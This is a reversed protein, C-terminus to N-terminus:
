HTARIRLTSAVRVVERPSDPHSLRRELLRLIERTTEEVPNTLTTLNFEPWAAITIDDFGILSVEGPVDIGAEHRLYTLAGIAMADNACIIADVASDQGVLRRAAERGGEYSYDGHETVVPELGARALRETMGLRRERDSFWDPPGGIYAFRQRGRKLLLETAQATAERNRCCVCDTGEEPTVHGSVIIPINLKVCREVLAPSVSGGRVILADLPYRLISLLGEESLADRGGVLIPWRNSANLETVLRATMMSDLEGELGGSVLAVLNSRIGTMAAAMANPQYGLQLASRLIRSRKEEDLYAGQTFARSVASRSVGAMEAVDAATVRRPRRGSSDPRPTTGDAIGADDGLGQEM